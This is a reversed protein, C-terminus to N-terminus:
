PKIIQAWYYYVGWVITILGGIATPVSLDKVLLSNISFSAPIFLLYCSLTVIWVGTAIGFSSIILNTIVTPDMSLKRVKRYVISTVFLALGLPLTIYALHPIAM